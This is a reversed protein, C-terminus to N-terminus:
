STLKDRWPSLHDQCSYLCQCESLRFSVTILTITGATVGIFPQLFFGADLCGAAEGMFLHNEIRPEFIKVTGLGKRTDQTAWLPGRYTGQPCPFSHVRTQGQDNKSFHTPDKGSMQDRQGRPCNQNAGRGAQPNIGFQAVHENM